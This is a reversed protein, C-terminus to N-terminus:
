VCLTVLQNEVQLDQMETKRLEAPQTLSYFYINRQRRNIPSQINAQMFAQLAYKHQEPKQILRANPM